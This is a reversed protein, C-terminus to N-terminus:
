SGYRSSCPFATLTSSQRSVTMAHRQPNEKARQLPTKNEGRDGETEAKSSQRQLIESTNVNIGPQVDAAKGNSSFNFLAAYSSDAKSNDTESCRSVTQLSNFQFRSDTTGLNRGCQDIPAMRPRRHDQLATQLEMHMDQRPESLAATGVPMYRTEQSAKYCRQNHASAPIKLSHPM